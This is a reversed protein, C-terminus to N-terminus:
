KPRDCMYAASIYDADRRALLADAIDGSESFQKLFSKIVRKVNVWVVRNPAQGVIGVLVESHVAM